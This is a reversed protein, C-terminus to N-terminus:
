YVFGGSQWSPGRRRYRNFQDRMRKQIGKLRNDRAILQTLGSEFLQYERANPRDQFTKLRAAAGNTIVSMWKQPILTVDEDKSLIPHDLTVLLTIEFEGSPTPEFMMNNDAEVLTYYFPNGGVNPSPAFREEFDRLELAWLYTNLQQSWAAHITDVGEPIPLYRSNAITKITKEATMFSFSSRSVIDQFTENLMDEIIDDVGRHDVKRQVLNKLYRFNYEDGM